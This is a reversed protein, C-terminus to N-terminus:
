CRDELEYLVLAALVPSATETRLIRPGLSVVHARVARAHAVEAPTYGGEPGVFIALREPRPLQRLISWLPCAGEGEHALLVPGTAAADALAQALAQPEGVEPVRGRGSQEAAERAIRQWRERREATPLHRVISREARVPVIRAAGVEVLKQLLQDLKDRGLLAPYAALRTRPEPAFAATGVVQGTAKRSSLDTLRVVRDAEGLGDFVRVRGGERLRLV